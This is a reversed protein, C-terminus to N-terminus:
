TSATVHRRVWSPRAQNCRCGRLLEITESGADSTVRESDPHRRQTEIVASHGTAGEHGNNRPEFVSGSM